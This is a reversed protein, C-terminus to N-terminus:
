GTLLKAVQKKWGADHIGRGVFRSRLDALYPLKRLALRYRRRDGTSLREEPLYIPERAFNLAVLARSVQRAEREVQAPDIRFVYTAHGSESTVELLLKREAPRAILFWSVYGAAPATGATDTTTPAAPQVVATPTEAGAEQAVPEGGSAASEGAPEVEPQADVTLGLYIGGADVGAALHGFSERLAPTGLVAQWLGEWSGPAAAEAEDRRFARGHGVVHALSMAEGESLAPVISQLGASVRANMEHRLRGLIATSEDFREGLKFVHTPLEGEVRLRVAYLAEDFEIAQLDNYSISFPDSTACLAVLSSPYLRLTAKDRVNAGAITREVEGRFERELRDDRYLLGRIWRENRSATFAAAFPDFRTALHSLHYAKGDFLAFDVEVQGITAAAIEAFDITERQGPPDRPELILVDATVTARGRVAPGGGRSYRLDFPAEAM